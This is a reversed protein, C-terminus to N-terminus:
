PFPVIGRISRARERRPLAQWGRWHDRELRFQAATRGNYPARGTPEFGLVQLCHAASRNAPDCYGFVENRAPDAFARQVLWEGGDLALSGGWADPQLRSGIEIQEPADIVHVLSFWGCFAWSPAEVMALLEDGIDGDAYAARAEAVSEADPPVAREACWIGRGEHQRYFARMGALFGAATAPDDLALDDVLQARVRPDQHMRVVDDLDHAAFERLRLRPSAQWHAGYPPPIQLSM